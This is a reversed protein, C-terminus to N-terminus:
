KSRKFLREGISLVEERRLDEESKFSDYWMARLGSFRWIISKSLRGMKNVILYDGFSDYCCVIGKDMFHLSNSPNNKDIVRYLVRCKWYKRYVDLHDDLVRIEKDWDTNKIKNAIKFALVLEKILYIM